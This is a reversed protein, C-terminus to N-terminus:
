VNLLRDDALVAHRQNIEFGVYNRRLRKAVVCTTATGAFPDLVIGPVYGRNCPCGPAVTYTGGKSSYARDDYRKVEDPRLRKKGPLHKGAQADRYNMAFANPNPPRYRIDRKPAGCQKCVLRPCGAKIPTEVLKEPFTAFHAFAAPRTAITWCDGPNKGNPHFATAGDAGVDRSLDGERTKSRANASQRPLSRHPVRVADLDFYYRRQKTMLFVHDWSNAFRDRTSSPMHNPKYWVIHNRVIWGRESMAIVFRHPVLCLSKSRVRIANAQGSSPRGVRKMGWGGAYSDGLNVWCTGTPKMVRKVEDFVALMHKLFLDITPELGLCGRWADCHVCFQGFDRAGLEAGLQNNRVASGGAKKTAANRKERASNVTAPKWKHRCGPDGDWVTPPIGYDRLGWYPPSTMVCDISNDPLKALGNLVDTVIIKNRFRALADTM